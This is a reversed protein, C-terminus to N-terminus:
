KEFIALMDVYLYALPFAFFYSDFRDLLGGHGPILAPADKVGVDRKIASEVLDGIQGGIGAILLLGMLALPSFSPLLSILGMPVLSGVIGGVLGVRTKNPSITPALKTEGWQRGSFYAASDALWICIFLVAVLHRGEAGPGAAQVLLLPASGLLGFFLVGGLTLFANAAFREVGGHRLTWALLILVVAMLQLVLADNTLQGQELRRFHTCVGMALISGPLILPRYGAQELIRYFEWACRGVVVVVLAYLTWEGVEVLLLVGPVFVVASLVRQKLNSGGATADAALVGRGSSTPPLPRM